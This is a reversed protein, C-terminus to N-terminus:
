TVPSSESAHGEVRVQQSRDSFFSQIWQLTSDGIGYYRLKLLLRQHPVKDFAETFDLLVADIQEEEDLHASIDQIMALLQSDCSRKKRFGHQKYFLIKHIDLHQMVQSQIIHEMTKCCISTLSIPRNNAPDSQDGKKFLLTVLKKGTM